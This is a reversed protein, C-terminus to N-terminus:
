AEARVYMKYLFRPDVVEEFTQLLGDIKWYDGTQNIGPPFIRTNRFREGYYLGAPNTLLVLYHTKSNRSYQKNLANSKRLRFMNWLMSRQTGALNQLTLTDVGKNELTNEINRYLHPPLTVDWVPSVVAVSGAKSAQELELGLDHLENFFLDDDDSAGAVTNGDYGVYNTATGVDSQQNTTTSSDSFKNVVATVNEAVMVDRLENDMHENLDAAQQVAYELLLNAELEAQEDPQIDQNFHKVNGWELTVRDVDPTNRSTDFNYNNNETIGHVSKYRPISMQRRTQMAGERSRNFLQSMVNTRRFTRLFAREFAVTRADNSVPM